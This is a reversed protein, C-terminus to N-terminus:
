KPLWQRKQVMQLTARDVHEKIFTERFAMRLKLYDLRCIKSRAEPLNFSNVLFKYTAERAGYALCLFNYFRQADSPRTADSFFGTGMIGRQAMYWATGLLTTWAVDEGFELMIFGATNDAADELRGWVPIELMDFVAYATQHLMLYVVAGVITQQATLKRGPGFLVVGELPANAEISAIYEYCITVVDSSAKYPVTLAGGCEDMTVTLKRPLKLPALFEQLTELARLKQMREYRPQVRPNKPAVYQIEIQPNRPFPQDQAGATAGFGLLLAVVGPLLKM